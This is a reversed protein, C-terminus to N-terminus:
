KIIRLADLRKQQRELKEHNPSVVDFDKGNCPSPCAAFCGRGHETHHGNGLVVCNREGDHSPTHDSERYRYTRWGLAKALLRESEDYVSAQVLGQFHEIMDHDRWAASYARNSSANEMMSKLWLKGELNLQGIDGHATARIGYIQPLTIMKNPNNEFGKRVQFVSYALPRVYCSGGNRVKHRCAEACVIDEYASWDGVFKETTTPIIYATLVKGFFPTQLKRNTSEEVLAITLNGFSNYKKIRM